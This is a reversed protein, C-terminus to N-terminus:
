YVNADWYAERLFARCSCSHGGKLANMSRRDLEEKSLQNLKVKSLTKKKPKMKKIKFITSFYTM